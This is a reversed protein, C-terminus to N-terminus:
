VMFNAAILNTITVGSLIALATEAGDAALDTSHYVTVANNNASDAIVIYGQTAVVSAGAAIASAANAITVPTADFIFVNNAAFNTTLTQGTAVSDTLNVIASFDLKDGGSDLAAASFGVITDTGNATSSFVVSASSLVSVGADTIDITDNGAGGNITDAGGGGYIINDAATGNLPTAAGDNAIIAGTDAFNIALNSKNADTVVSANGGTFATNGMTVTLSSVDNLNAHATANGTFSLTATTDSNKTVVATLGGPVNNFTV